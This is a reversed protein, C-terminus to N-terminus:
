KLENLEAGTLQTTLETIHSQFSPINMSPMNPIQTNQVANNVMSLSDIFKTKWNTSSSNQRPLNTTVNTSSVQTLQHKLNQNQCEAECQAVKARALDLELERIRQKLTNLDDNDCTPM